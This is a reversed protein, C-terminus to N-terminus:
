FFNLIQKVIYVGVIIGSILFYAGLIVVSIKQTNNEKCSKCNKKEM